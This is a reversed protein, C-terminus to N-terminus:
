PLLVEETGSTIEGDSFSATTTAPIPTSGSPTFAATTLLAAALAQIEVTSMTLSVTDGERAASNSGSNFSHIGSNDIYHAGKEEGDSDTSYVKTEGPNTPIAIKYNIHSIIIDISGVRLRVGKSGTSPKGIIGPSNQVQATEGKDSIGKLTAVMSSGATDGPYSTDNISSIEIIGALLKM